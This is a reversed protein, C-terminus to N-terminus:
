FSLSFLDKWSRRLREEEYYLNVRGHGDSYIKLKDVMLHNLESFKIGAPLEYGKYSIRENRESPAEYVKLQKKITKVVTKRLIKRVEDFNSELGYEKIGELFYKSDLDIDMIILKLETDDQEHHEARMTANIKIPFELTGVRLLLKAVKGTFKGLFGELNVKISMYLSASNGEEDMQLFPPISGFSVPDPLNSRRIRGLENEIQNNIDRMVSKWLGAEYTVSMVDNLYDESASVLLKVRPNEMIENIVKKSYKYDSKTTTIPFPKYERADHCRLKGYASFSKVLCFQSEVEMKMIHKSVAELNKIKFKAVLDHPRTSTTGIWNTKAVQFEGSDRLANNLSKYQILKSLEGILLEKIFSNNKDIYEIVKERSLDYSRGAARVGIQPMVIDIFSLNFGDTENSLTRALKEFNADDFHVILDDDLEEIGLRVKFDIPIQHDISFSIGQVAFKINQIKGNRSKLSFNLAVEDVTVRVGRLSVDSELMVGTSENKVSILPDVYDIKYGLGQIKIQPEVNLIDVGIIKELTKIESIAEQSCIEEIKQIDYIIDEEVEFHLPDFTYNLNKTFQKLEDLMFLNWRNELRNHVILSPTEVQAFLMSSFTFLLLTWIIKM